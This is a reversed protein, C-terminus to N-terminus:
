DNLYVLSAPHAPSLNNYMTIKHTITLCENDESPNLLLPPRGVLTWCLNCMKQFQKASQHITRLDIEKTPKTTCGECKM